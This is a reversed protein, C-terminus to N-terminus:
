GLRIVSRELISILITSHLGGIVLAVVFGTLGSLNPNKVNRWAAITHCSFGVGLAFFMALFTLWISYLFM